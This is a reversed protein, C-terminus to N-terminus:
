RKDGTALKYTECPWATDCETCTNAGSEDPEQEMHRTCWNTAPTGSDAHLRAIETLSALTM